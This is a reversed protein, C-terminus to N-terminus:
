NHWFRGFCSLIFQQVYVLAGVVRERKMRMRRRGQTPRGAQLNISFWQCQEPLRLSFSLVCGQVFGNELAHVLPLERNEVPIDQFYQGDTKKADSECGPSSFFPLFYIRISIISIIREVFQTTFMKTYEYIM